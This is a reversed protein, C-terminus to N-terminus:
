QLAVKGPAFGQDVKSCEQKETYTRATAAKITFM